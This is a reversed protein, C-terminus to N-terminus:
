ADERLYIDQGSIGIHELLEKSEILSIALVDFKYPLPLDELEMAIAETELRDSIGSLAIDIDSYPKSVGKSRSGFITAKTIANHGKFISIISNIESETLGFRVM